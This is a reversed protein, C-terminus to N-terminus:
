GVEGNRLSLVVKLLLNCGGVYQASSKLEDTATKYTVPDWPKSWQASNQLENPVM